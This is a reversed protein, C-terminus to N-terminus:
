QNEFIEDELSEKKNQKQLVAKKARELQRNKDKQEREQNEIDAQNKQILGKKENVEQEGKQIEKNINELKRNNENILNRLDVENM